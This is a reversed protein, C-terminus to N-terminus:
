KIKKKLALALDKTIREKSELSLLRLLDEIALCIIPIGEEKSHSKLNKELQEHISPASFIGIIKRKPNNESVMRVHDPVSAGEASWQKRTDPIVTVELVILLDDIFILLDAKGSAPYPLGYTGIKGSWVVDDIIGDSKLKKLYLWMLQELRGGRIQMENFKFLPFMSKILSLQAKLETDFKNKILQQIFVELDKPAFTRTEIKGRPLVITVGNKNATFSEKKVLKGDKSYIEIDYLENEFLPVILETEEGEFWREFWLSDNQKIRLFIM